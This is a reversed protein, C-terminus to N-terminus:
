IGPRSDGGSYVDDGARDLLVALGYDHGIAHMAGTRVTYADNGAGDVLYAACLHMASAQSYYHAAYADHGEGDWLLGVSFWYSAGQAYTGASYLDDGTADMLIGIGGAEGGSDERYGCAAGQAFCQWSQPVLPAGSEVGGSTYVDNGSLDSLVGAGATRAAGEGFLGVHYRDDGRTDQLLGVGYLGFGLSLAAARYSDHGGDKWLTGFGGLAAGFTLIRGFLRDHGGVDWLAGVGLLGAGGGTEGLDFQDSGGLDIALGAGAIGAGPHGLYLDDGGPDICLANAPVNHRDARPTGVIVTLAGVRFQLPQAPGGARFAEQLDRVLAPCATEIRAAAQHMVEWVVRDLLDFAETRQLLRADGPSPPVAGSEAAIPPLSRILAARDNESLPQLAQAVLRQAELVLAAARALPAKAAEPLAAPMDAPSVQVSVQALGAKLPAQPLLRFFRLGLDETQRAWQAWEGVADFSGVPDALAREVAAIRRGEPAVPAVIRLEKRDFNWLRLLRDIGASEEPTWQGLASASLLAAWLALARKM